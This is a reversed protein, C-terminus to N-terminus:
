LRATAHLIGYAEMLDKAWVHEKWKGGGLLPSDAHIIYTIGKIYGKNWVGSTFLHSRYVASLESSEGKM